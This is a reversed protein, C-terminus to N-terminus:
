DVNVNMMMVILWFVFFEHFEHKLLWVNFVLYTM